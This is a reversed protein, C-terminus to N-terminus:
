KEVLKAGVYNFLNSPSFSVNKLNSRTLHGEVLQYIPAVEQNESLIKLAESMKNFRKAADEEFNSQAILDDYQQNSTKGFNYVNDTTQVKLIAVPDPFDAAVQSTMLDFQGKQGMALRSKHPVPQINIKLGSLHQLQGQFYEMLKKNGENDEGLMTWTVENIGTEKKGEQWLEQARKLDYQSSASIKKDIEQSFDAKTQPDKALGTPVLVHIPFSGDGLIHETLQKRDIALSIAKRIKLNKLAPNTGQNFTIYMTRTLRQPHFNSDKKKQQAIEGSVVIDDLQHDDFLSLATNPDKVVQYEIRDLNVQSTNWYTSNKKLTWNNNSGNWKTLIFPGNYVVKEATTGYTKGYKKVIKENQPFFPTNTMLATFYPIKHELEVTFTHDDIKNIGLTEPSKKGKMIEDANKIGSYLYAYQAKTKPDVTRRWAFIFDNATVPDGNSWKASSRLNFRYKLGSSDPQVIKEAMAPEITQNHYRYLGEMVNTVAQMSNQDFFTSTDMSQLTDGAAVRWVRENATKKPTAKQCGGIIVFVMLLSIIIILRKVNKM